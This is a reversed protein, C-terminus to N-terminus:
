NNRPDCYGELILTQATRQYSGQLRDLVGSDILDQFLAVIEDFNLEGNEYQILDNATPM